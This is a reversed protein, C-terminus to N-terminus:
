HRAGVLLSLGMVCLVGLSAALYRWDRLRAFAWALVAVRLVPTLILAAIGTRLLGEGPEVGCWSFLLGCFILFSSIATGGRLAAGVVRNVDDM